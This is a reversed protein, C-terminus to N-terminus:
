AELGWLDFGEINRRSFMDLRRGATVRRVVDYFEEPKESHKGRPANFCVNFAKLDVFDPSGKRAYLAFECNYQPLGVPQYGGSKHWVFTCVYKLGWEDLLRLALPLHKHTTWLWVHCSEATPIELRALAAENLTPYDFGVQNPREDREIKQMEWPPDIVIVDYVGQLEKAKMASIDELKQIAMERKAERIAENITSADGTAIKEVVAPNQVAKEERPTPNLISIPKREVQRPREKGDAGISSHSDCLQGSAVMDKRAVSVTSNSIGLEAAIQRDSKEPTEALQKRIAERKEELTLHRRAINAQRAFDIKEEETLGVHVIKNPKIGLEICIKFRHHGDIVNGHEDCDIAVLQGHEIISKKLEDYEQATLPRMIQYKM